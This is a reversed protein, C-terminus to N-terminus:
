IPFTPLQGHFTGNIFGFAQCISINILAALEGLIKMLTIANTFVALSLRLCFRRACYFQFRGSSSSASSGSGVFVSEGSESRVRASSMGELLV